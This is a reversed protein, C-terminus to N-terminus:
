FICVFQIRFDRIRSIIHILGQGGMNIPLYLMEQSIWHKGQLLFEAFKSQITNVVEDPISVSNLKHWLKSASLLNIVLSRGRLSLGRAFPKWKELKILIDDQMEDWNQKFFEKNNGVYTGLVKLGKNNWKLGLPSDKRDKWSGIWLGQTKTLNVKSNSTKQYISLWFSLRDFDSDSTILTDCRHM